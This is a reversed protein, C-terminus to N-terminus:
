TSELGDVTVSRETNILGANNLLVHLQSHKAKLEKAVARISAQSSLDALMLEASGGGSQEKVEAMAQHGRGADRCVLVVHAGRRALEVAAAKGIGQSAGTVLCVRGRMSHSVNM